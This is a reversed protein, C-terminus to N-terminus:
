EDNEEDNEDNNEEDNENEKMEDEDEYEDDDENGDSDVFTDDNDMSDGQESVEDEGQDEEKDDKKGRISKKRSQASAVGAMTDITQQKSAAGKKNRPSFRVPETPKKRKPTNPKPKKGISSKSKKKGSGSSPNPPCKRKRRKSSSLKQNTKRKTPPTVVLVDDADDDEAAVDGPAVMDEEVVTDKENNKRDSENLDVLGTGDEFNVEFDDQVDVLGDDDDNNDMWEDDLLRNIIEDSDEDPEEPPPISADVSDDDYRDDITVYVIRNANAPTTDEGHTTLTYPSVNKNAKRGKASNGVPGSSNDKNTATPDIKAPPKTDMSDNDLPADPPPKTGGASKRGQLSDESPIKAGEVPYFSMTVAPDKIVDKTIDRTNFYRRLWSTSDRMGSVAFKNDQEKLSEEIAASIAMDDPDIERKDYSKTTGKGAKIDKENSEIEAVLQRTIREMTRMENTKRDLNSMLKNQMMWSGISFIREQFANTAPKALWVIASPFVYSWNSSHKRWWGMLDFFRGVELYNRSHCHRAFMQKQADDWKPWEKSYAETPYQKIIDAWNFDIQSECHRLFDDYCETCAKKLAQQLVQEEGAKSAKGTINLLAQKRLDSAQRMREFVDMSKYKLTARNPEVVLDSSSDSTKKNQSTMAAGIASVRHNTFRDIMDNIIITRGEKVNDQDYVGFNVFMDAYVNALLPNCGVAKLADPDRNYLYYRFEQIIRRVLLRPGPYLDKYPIARRAEDLDDISKRADWYKQPKNPRLLCGVGCDPGEMRMRQAHYFSTYIELLSASNSGPDDTQLKMAVMKINTLIGEYQALQLWEDESPYRKKFNPDSLTATKCYEDMCPKDRFLNHISLVLGGVRTDNPLPILVIKGGFKKVGDKLREWRHPAKSSTLWSAFKKFVSWLDCFSDNSDILIRNQYRQVLGTAHKLVLEAKHMDCKGTKDPNGIIYKGALVASSTNDNVAACLDATSLGVSLLLSDTLNAVDTAAHGHCEALGIPIKYVVCNRPDTFMITVGLVDHNKAQWIDHCCTVFPVSQACLRKYEDRSKRILHGVTIFFQKYSSIRVKTIQRRSMIEAHSDKLATANKIAYQILERFQPKEVTVAPLCCDNVFRYILTQLQSKAESKTTNQRFTSLTSQKDSTKKNNKIEEDLGKHHKLVHQDVNSPKYHSCLIVCENLPKSGTNFCLPCIVATKCILSYREKAVIPKRKEATNMFSDEGIKVLDEFAAVLKDFGDRAGPLDELTGKEQQEVLFLEFKLWDVHTVWKWYPSTNRGYSIFPTFKGDILPILDKEEQHFQETTQAVQAFDADVAKKKKELASPKRVLQPSKKKTKSGPNKKKVTKKAPPLHEEDVQDKQEVIKDHPGPDPAAAEDDDSM